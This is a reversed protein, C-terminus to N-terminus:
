DILKNTLSVDAKRRKLKAEKTQQIIYEKFQSSDFKPNLHTLKKIFTSTIELRSRDDIISEAISDAILIFDKKTM